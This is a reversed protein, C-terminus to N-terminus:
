CAISFRLLLQALQGNLSISWRVSTQGSRVKLFDVMADANGDLDDTYKRYLQALNDVGSSQLKDISKAGLGRVELLKQPAAASSALVAANRRQQGAARVQSKLSAATRQKASPSRMALEFVAFVGRGCFLMCIGLKRSADSTLLCVSTLHTARSNQTCSYSLKCTLTIRLCTVVLCSHNSM